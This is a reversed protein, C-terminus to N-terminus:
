KPAHTELMSRGSHDVVPNAYCECLGTGGVYVYPVLYVADYM